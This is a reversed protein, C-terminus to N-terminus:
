LFFNIFINRIKLINAALNIFYIYPIYNKDRFFVEKSFSVMFMVSTTKPIAGRILAAPRKFCAFWATSSRVSLSGSFASLIAVAM